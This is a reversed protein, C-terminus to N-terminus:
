GNAQNLNKLIYVIVGIDRLLKLHVKRLLVNRKYRVNRILEKTGFTKKSLQDNIQKTIYLFLIKKVIIFVNKNTFNFSSKVIIKLMGYM